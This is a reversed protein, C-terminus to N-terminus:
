FERQGVDRFDAALYDYLQVKVEKVDKNFKM